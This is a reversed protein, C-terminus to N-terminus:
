KGGRGGLLLSWWDFIQNIGWLNADYFSVLAPKPEAGSFTTRPSTALNDPAQHEESAISKLPKDITIAIPDSAPFTERLAEDLMNDLHEADPESQGEPRPTRMLM